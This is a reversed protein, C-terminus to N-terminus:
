SAGSIDMIQIIDELEVSLRVAIMGNEAHKGRLANASLLEPAFFADCVFGTQTQVLNPTATASVTLATASYEEGEIFYRSLLVFFTRPGAARLAAAMAEVQVFREALHDPVAYPDVPESM